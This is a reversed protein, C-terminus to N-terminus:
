GVWWLQFLWDHLSTLTTEAYRLNLAVHCLFQLICRFSWFHICFQCSSLTVAHCFNLGWGLNSEWIFANFWSKFLSSGCLKWSILIHEWHWTYFLIFNSNSYNTIRCSLSKSTRGLSVKVWQWKGLSQTVLCISALLSHLSPGVVQWLEQSVVILRIM